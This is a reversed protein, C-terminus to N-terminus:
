RDLVIQGEVANCRLAKLAMDMAEDPLGEGVFTRGQAVCEMMRGWMPRWINNNDQRGDCKGDVWGEFRWTTSRDALFNALEVFSIGINRAAVRLVHTKFDAEEQEERWNHRRYYARCKFPEAYAGVVELMVLHSGGGIYHCFGISRPHESKQFALLLGSNLIDGAQSLHRLARAYEYHRLGPEMEQLGEKTALGALSIMAVAM